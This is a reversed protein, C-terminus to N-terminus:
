INIGALDFRDGVSMGCNTFHRDEFNRVRLPTFDHHSAGHQLGSHSEARVISTCSGLSCPSTLSPRTDTGGVNDPEDGKQAVAAQPFRFGHAQVPVSRRSVM